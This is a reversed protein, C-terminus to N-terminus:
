FNFSRLLLIPDMIWGIQGAKETDSILKDWHQFGGIPIGVDLPGLTPIKKIFSAIVDSERPPFKFTAPDDVQNEYWDYLPVLYSEGIDPILWMETITPPCYWSYFGMPGSTTGPLPRNPGFTGDGFESCGFFAIMDKPVTPIETLGQVEGDVWGEMSFFNFVSCGNLLVNIQDIEVDNSSPNVVTYSYKYAFSTDIIVEDVSANVIINDFKPKQFKM